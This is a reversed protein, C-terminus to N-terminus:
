QELVRITGWQGAQRHGPQNCYYVFEGVKDATFEVVVEQNLPTGEYINFEDLKFDHTGKINTIKIKVKDGKNVTIEKLSFQPKPQGDVFEVFSEMTFEKVQKEAAPEQTNVPEPVNEKVTEEIQPTPSPKKGTFLLVGLVIVAIIILSIIIKNM